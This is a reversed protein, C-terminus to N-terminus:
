IKPRIPCGQRRLCLICLQCGNDPIRTYLPVKPFWTTQFREPASTYATQCLLTDCLAGHGDSLRTYKTGGNIEFMEPLDVSCREQQIIQNVEKMYPETLQVVKDGMTFKSLKM